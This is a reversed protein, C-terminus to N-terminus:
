EDPGNAIEKKAGYGGGMLAGLIPNRMKGLTFTKGYGLNTKGTFGGKAAALPTPTRGAAALAKARAAAEEARATAESGRYYSLNARLPAMKAATDKQLQGYLQQLYPDTARARMDIFGGGGALRRTLEAEAAPGLKKAADLYAANAGPGSIVSAPGLAKMQALIGAQPAKFNAATSAATNANFSHWRRSIDPGAYASLGKITPLAVAGAGASTAIRLGSRGAQRAGQALNKTDLVSEGDRNVPKPPPVIPPDVPPTDTKPPPSAKPKKPDLLSAGGYGAAAGGLGGVALGSLFNKFRDKRGGRLMNLAGFTGGGVLSGALAYQQEKGLGKWWGEVGGPKPAGATPTPTPAPAAPVPDPM